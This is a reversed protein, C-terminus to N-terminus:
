NQITIQSLDLELYEELESIPDKPVIGYLYHFERHCNSCLVICKEIESIVDEDVYIAELYPCNTFVNVHRENALWIVSSPIRISIARSEFSIAFM